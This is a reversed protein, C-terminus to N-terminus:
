EKIISKLLDVLENESLNNMEIDFNIGNYTFEVIYMSKDGFIIFEVDGIKSIKNTDSIYIDRLPKEVESFALTVDRDAGEYCIVYDHLLDYKDSNIDSRTYVSYSNKLELGEPLEVNKVFEFREPLDKIEVNVVDADLSMTSVGNIRNINLDVGAQTNIEGINNFKLFCILVVALACVSAVVYRGNFRKVASAGKVKSLIIEYNKDIDFEKAIENKLDNSM